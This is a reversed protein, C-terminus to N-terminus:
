FRAVKIPRDVKPLTRGVLACLPCWGSLATVLLGIGSAAAMGGWGWDGGLALAVGTVIAALAVLARLTREWGPVNKQTM